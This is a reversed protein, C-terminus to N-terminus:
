QGLKAIEDIGTEELQEAVEGPLKEGAVASVVLLSLIVTPLM